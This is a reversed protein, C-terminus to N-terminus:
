KVVRRIDAFHTNWYGSSWIHYGIGSSNSDFMRNNDIYIGVHSIYDPAGYTGKFFILDGPKPDTVSVTDAWQETTVRGISIGAKGYSWQILGSCDFGVTPNAGGWSYAWGEYKLSESMVKQFLEDGMPLGVEGDKVVLYRWVHAVYESDGYAFQGNGNMTGGSRLRAYAVSMEQTYKGGNDRSFGVFAGGYNYAQVAVKLYAEDEINEIGVDKMQSWLYKVGQKISEEKGLTNPPLGLSESCQFVDPVRGGSEQMCIALMLNIYKAPMGVEEMAKEIDPKLALVEENVQGGEVVLETKPPTSGGFMNLVETVLAVGFMATLALGGVVVLYFIIKAKLGKLM